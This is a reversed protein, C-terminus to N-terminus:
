VKKELIRNNKLFCSFDKREVLWEGGLMGRLRRGDVDLIGMIERLAGGNCLVRKGGLIAVHLVFFFDHFGRWNMRSCVAGEDAKVFARRIQVANKVRHVIGFKGLANKYRVLGDTVKVGHTGKGMQEMRRVPSFIKPATKDALAPFVHQHNQSAALRVLCNFAYQLNHGGRKVM